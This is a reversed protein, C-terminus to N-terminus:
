CHFMTKVEVPTLFTANSCKSDQLCITCNVYVKSSHVSLRFLGAMCAWGIAIDSIIDFYICKCVQALFDMAQTDLTVLAPTVGKLTTALQMLMVLILSALVSMWIQLECGM